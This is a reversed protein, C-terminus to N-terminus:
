GDRGYGRRPRARDFRPGAAPMDEGVVASNDSGDDRSTETPTGGGPDSESQRAALLEVARYLAEVAARLERLEAAVTPEVVPATGAAARAQAQAASMKLARAAEALEDEVTAPLPDAM